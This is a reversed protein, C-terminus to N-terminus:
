RGRSVWSSASRQLEVSRLSRGRRTDAYRDPRLDGTIPALGCQEKCPPFGRTGHRHRRPGYWGRERAASFGSALGSVRWVRRPRQGGRHDSGRALRACHRPWAACIAAEHERRERRSSADFVAPHLPLRRERPPSAPSQEVPEHREGNMPTCQWPLSSIFSAAANAPNCLVTPCSPFQSRGHRM